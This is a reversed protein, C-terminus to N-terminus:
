RQQQPQQGFNFGGGNQQPQQNGMGGMNGMNGFNFSNQEPQQQQQQDQQLASSPQSGSGFNFNDDGRLNQTGQGSQPAATTMAQGGSQMQLIKQEEDIQHQRAEREKQQLVLVSEQAKDEDAEAKLEAKEASIRAQQKAILDKKQQSEQKQLSQIQVAIQQSSENAKGQASKDATSSSQDDNKGFGM